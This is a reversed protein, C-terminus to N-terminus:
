REQEDVRGSRPTFLSNVVTTEPGPTSVAAAHAVCGLLLPQGVGSLLLSESFLLM